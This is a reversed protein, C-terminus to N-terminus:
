NQENIQYPMMHTNYHSTLESAPHWKVHGDMYTINAGAPLIFRGAATHNSLQGAVTGNSAIDMLMRWHPKAEKLTRASNVRYYPMRWYAHYNTYPKSTGQDSARKEPTMKSYGSPCHTIKWNSFYQPHLLLAIQMTDSNVFCEGGSYPVSACKWWFEPYTTSRPPPPMESNNDEVYFLVAISLQRQNSVCKIIRAKERAMNLAPLLMAALIAIISIIILLEIITFCNRRNM